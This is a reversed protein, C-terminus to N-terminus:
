EGDGSSPDPESTSGVPVPQTSSEHATGSTVESDASRRITPEASMAIPRGFEQVWYVGYEGGQKVAVGIEVFAPDLINARHGSSRMWHALVEKVDEHGAALNEGVRRFAYGFNVARDDVNSGDYPDEHGFFGDEIMRCAWFEAMEILAPDLRLPRLNHKVREANVTNLIERVLNEGNPLDTCPDFFGLRAAEAKSLELSAPAFSFSDEGQCGAAAAAACLLVATLRWYFRVHHGM